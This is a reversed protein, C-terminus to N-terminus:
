DKLKLRVLGDKVEFNRYEGLSEIIKRFLPDENYQSKMEELLATEHPYMVPIVQGQEMESEQPGPQRAEPTQTVAQPGTSERGEMRLALPPVPPRPGRLVFRDRMRRAFEVSSEVPSGADARPRRGIGMPASALEKSARARASPVAVRASHCLLVLAEGAVLVPMSVLPSVDVPPSDGDFTVYESLARVTGPADFDYLRSLADPLVNHAGPVYEVTFDFEGLKELWRAQHGSLTKQGLIYILSEHDTLWKFPCGQLIDRHRLMTEVGALLEQEHVPYNWQAATLKASYFAAISATRWEPGQAVVGGVGTPCADTMMWVQAATPGYVLPVRHHDACAAVRSKVEEFARQETSTWRFPVSDGCVASLVGLPIRVRYVDDALYGVAGIFGRCLDRNTPVKWNLVTDVKDLDMRIGEDTIVRGLVKLEPCLFKLKKESLFLHECKLIDVVTQIHTVHDELTDSYVVLDDLYVDMWMGIYEGFLHNMLAQYTAPANCDGIQTVHSVMNGDPTAMATRPVHEPIIRIQEYADQGDLLSRFPHRAVRRLIGEMDPLPSSLKKTNKNRERLDVVTRLTDTGPKRILLMPVTNGASTVQWRGTLLYIQRKASWQARLPEPCRSPRWPYVKQEDILPISHNIVRMPPLATESAKVCLPWAIEWLRERTRELAGDAVDVARSALTTVADGKLPLPTISGLLVRSANFGVTVSHQYLFPTGLILDYNQVNIVDFYRSYDTGQYQFRVTTGYNVKSRSGQVALQITLPKELTVLQCKLQEATTLSIFDALSGTDILARAPRGNVHVVVVVLKPIARTFDKTSASNRQLAPFTGQPVQAGFSDIVAQSRGSDATGRRLVHAKARDLVECAQEFDGEDLLDGVIDTVASPEEDVDGFLRAIGVYQGGTEYLVENAVEFAIKRVWRDYWRAPNWRWKSITELTVELTIELGHDTISFSTESVRECSFRPLGVDLPPLQLGDAVKSYRNLWWVIRDAVPEGMPDKVDTRERESVKLFIASFGLRKGLHMWYATDLRFDPKDLETRLVYLRRHEAPHLYDMIVFIGDVSQRELSYVHFREPDDWKM